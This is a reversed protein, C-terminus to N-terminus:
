KSFRLVRFLGVDFRRAGARNAREYGSNRPKVHSKELTEEKQRLVPYVPLSHRSLAIQSVESNGSRCLPTIPSMTCTSKVYTRNCMIIARERSVVSPIKYYEGAFIGTIASFNGISFPVNQVVCSVRLNERSVSTAYTRCRYNKM